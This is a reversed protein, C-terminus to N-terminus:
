PVDEPAPTPPGEVLRRRAEALDPEPIPAVAWPLITLTAVSIAALIWFVRRAGAADLRAISAHPM